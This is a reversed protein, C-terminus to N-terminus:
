VKRHFLKYSKEINLEYHPKMALDSSDLDDRDINDDVDDGGGVEVSINSLLDKRGNCRVLVPFRPMDQKERSAALYEFQMQIELTEGPDLKERRYIIVRKMPDWIGGNKSMKMSEGSVDPPVAMLLVVNETQHNNTPNSRVKLGVRCYTGAVRTKVNVLLPIPRLFESGVFKILNMSKSDISDSSGAGAGSGGPLDVQFIRCGLKQRTLVFEDEIGTNTSDTIDKVIDDDTTLTGIHHDPDKIALYFSRGNINEGPIVNITGQIEMTNANNGNKKERGNGSGSGSGAKSGADSYICSLQEHLALHVPIRVREETSVDQADSVQSIDSVDMKTDIDPKSGGGVQFLASFIDSDITTNISTNISASVSSKDLTTPTYLLNSRSRSHSRGREQKQSMANSSTSANNKNQLQHSANRGRGTAVVQSNGIDNDNGNGNDNGNTTYPNDNPHFENSQYSDDLAISSFNVNNLEHQQQQQHHKDAHNGVPVFAPSSSTDEAEDEEFSFPDFAESM